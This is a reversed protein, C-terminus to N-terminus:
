SPRYMWGLTHCSPAKPIRPSCRKKSLCPATCARIDTSKVRSNLHRRSTESSCNLGAQSNLSQFFYNVKFPLIQFHFFKCRVQHKVTVAFFCDIKNFSHKLPSIPKIPLYPSEGISIGSDRLYLITCTSNFNQPPEIKDGSLIYPCYLFNKFLYIM